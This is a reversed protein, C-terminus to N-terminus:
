YIEKEYWYMKLEFNNKTFIKSSSENGIKVLAVLKELGLKKAENELLSLAKSAFGQNQFEKQIMIGVDNNLIRCYGIPTENSFILWHHFHSNFKQKELYAYHETKTLPKTQKYFFDYFENRLELIFDWDEENVTKLVVVL